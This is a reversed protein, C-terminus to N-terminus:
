KMQFASALGRDGDDDEVDAEHGSVSQPPVLSGFSIRRSPALGMRKVRRLTPTKKPSAPAVTSPPEYSTPIEAPSSASHLQPLEAGFMSPNRQLNMRQRSPSKGVGLTSPSPSQDSVKFSATHSKASEKRERCKKPTKQKAEPSASASPSPVSGTKTKVKKAQKTRLKEEEDSSPYPINERPLVGDNAARARNVEKSEQAIAGYSPARKITQRVPAPTSPPVFALHEKSPVPACFSESRRVRQVRPDPASTMSSPLLQFPIKADALGLSSMSENSTMSSLTAGSRRNHARSSSISSLTTLTSTSPTSPSLSPVHGLRAPSSPRQQPLHRTRSYPHFNSHSTPLFDSTRQLRNSLRNISEVEEQDETISGYIFDMSSQRYVPRKKPVGAADGEGRCQGDNEDTVMRNDDAPQGFPSLGNLRGKAEAIGRAIKDLLNSPPIPGHFPTVLHSPLADLTRSLLLIHDQKWEAADGEDGFDNNSSNWSDSSKRNSPNLIWSACAPSGCSSRPTRPASSASGASLLSSRRRPLPPNPLILTLPAVRNQRRSM